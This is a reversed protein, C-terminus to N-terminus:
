QAVPAYIDINCHMGMGTAGYSAPLIRLYMAPGPYGIWSVESTLVLSWISLPTDDINNLGSCAVDYAGINNLTTSGDATPQSLFEAPMSLAIGTYGSMNAVVYLYLHYNAHYMLTGADSYLYSYHYDADGVAYSYLNYSSVVALRALDSKYGERRVQLTDGVVQWDLGLLGALSYLTTQADGNAAVLSAGAGASVAPEKRNILVPVLIVALTLCAISFAITGFAALAVYPVNGPVARRMQPHARRASMEQAMPWFFGHAPAAAL